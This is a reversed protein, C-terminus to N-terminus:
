ETMLYKVGTKELAAVRYRYADMAENEYALPHSSGMEELLHKTFPPNLVLFPGLLYTGYFNKYHIGENKTEPNMGYGGTVQIFPHAQEGYSFSYQSKNGVIKLGNYTGIFMSNHRNNMNRKAHTPFYGLAPIKRDEDVIYQGFLELANNTALVFMGSEILEWLKEKHPMLRSLALEQKSETMAGLYILDVTETLFRPTEQNHTEYFTATPLCHRLYTMNAMDGYLNCLEPYLFEITM